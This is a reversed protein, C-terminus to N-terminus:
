EKAKKGAVVSAPKEVRPAVYGPVPNLLLWWQHPGYNNKSLERSEIGKLTPQCRDYTHTLGTHARLARSAFKKTPISYFSWYFFAPQGARSAARNLFVSALGRPQTEEISRFCATVTYYSVELVYYM